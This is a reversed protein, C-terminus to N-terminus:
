ETHIQFIEPPNIIHKSYTKTVMIAFLVDLPLFDYRCITLKFPVDLIIVKHRETWSLNTM